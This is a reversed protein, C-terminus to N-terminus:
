HVCSSVFVDGINTDPLAPVIRVCPEVNSVCNSVCTEQHFKTIKSIRNYMLLFFKSWEQKCFIKLPWIHISYRLICGLFFAILKKILSFMESFYCTYYKWLSVPKCFFVKLFILLTYKNHLNHGKACLNWKAWYFLIIDCTLMSCRKYIYIYRLNTHKLCAM